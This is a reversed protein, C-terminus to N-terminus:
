QNKDYAETCLQDALNNWENDAHGKTWTLKVNPLKKKLDLILSWLDLNKRRKWVNNYCKRVLESDTIITADTYGNALCYKLAELVATMEMRNNTAGKPHLGYCIAIAKNNEVVVFSFTGPSWPKGNFKASGDTYIEIM